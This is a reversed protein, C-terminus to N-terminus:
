TMTPPTSLVVRKTRNLTTENMTLTAVIKAKAAEARNAACEKRLRDPKKSAVLSYCHWLQGL